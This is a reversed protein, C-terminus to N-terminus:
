ACRMGGAQAAIAAEHLVHRLELPVLAGDRGHGEGLVPVCESDEAAASGLLPQDSKVRGGCSPAGGTEPWSSEERPLSACRENALLQLVDAGFLSEQMHIKSHPGM